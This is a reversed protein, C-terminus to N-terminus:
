TLPLQDLGVVSSLADFQVSVSVGICMGAVPPANRPIPPEYKNKEYLKQVTDLDQAYNQFIVLYKNELDQKLMDRQLISQFQQLLSLAHDTSSINEFSRNVFSQLQIELDHINVNFELFDRDFQPLCLPLFERDFQPLCLGCGHLLPM